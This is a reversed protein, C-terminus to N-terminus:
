ALFCRVDCHQQYVANFMINIYPINTGVSDFTILSTRPFLLISQSNTTCIYEFTRTM